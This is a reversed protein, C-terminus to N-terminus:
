GVAWPAISRATRSSISRSAKICAQSPRAAGSSSAGTYPSRRDISTDFYLCDALVARAKGSLVDTGEKWLYAREADFPRYPFEPHAYQGATYAVITRPDIAHDLDRFSSDRLGSPRTCSWRELAEASAKAHATAPDTSRGWSWDFNEGKVRASGVFFPPVYPLQDTEMWRFEIEPSAVARAVEEVSPSSGLIVSTLPVLGAPLKLLAGLQREYFGGIEVAAVGGEAAALLINQAVHGAELPVYLAARTGYKSATHALSGSVVVIGQAAFLVDCDIFARPAFALDGDVSEIGVKGPGPFGLRYIGADLGDVARFNVFHIQLPYLGGASPVTRHSFLGYSAWLISLLTRYPVPDLGFIRASSRRQLIDILSGNAFAPRDEVRAAPSYPSSIVPPISIGAIADPNRIHGWWYEALRSTECLVGNDVLGDILNALDVTNWARGLEAVIDAMPTHADCLEALRALLKAPAEVHVERDMLYCTARRGRVLLRGTFAPVSIAISSRLDARHVNDHRKSM